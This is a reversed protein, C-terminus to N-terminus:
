YIKRHVSCFLISIQFILPMSNIRRKRLESFKYFYIEGSHAEKKLSWKSKTRYKFRQSTKINTHGLAEPTHAMSNVSESVLKAFTDRLRHIHFASIGAEPSYQKM